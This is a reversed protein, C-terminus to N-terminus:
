PSAAETGPALARAVARRGEAIAEAARDFDLLGFDALRPTVLLDPPDGAMRSRTIRVQMINLTNAIVEYISPPTPEAPGESGSGVRERVSEAVRHLAARLTGPEDAAHGEGADAVEGTAANADEAGIRRGLLTTNLDVAIVTDAEMARCLSVPVANVLGGDVLWRGDLQVPAVLGPLAVAARLCDVVPGERLWVERGTELDTAVAAFPVELDVLDRDRLEATLFDTLKRAKILGGRLSLDLYGVVQRWDLQRGWRELADLRGAAYLAGVLAGSSAGAVVDPRIGREELARIVGVHAWGRAAGSGLALGIRGALPASM